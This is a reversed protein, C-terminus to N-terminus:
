PTFLWAVPEGPSWTIEVKSAAAIKDRSVDPDDDPWFAPAFLRDFRAHLVSKAEGEFVMHTPDAQGCRRATMLWKGRM